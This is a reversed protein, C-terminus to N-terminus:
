VALISSCLLKNDDDILIRKIIAHCFAPWVYLFFLLCFVFYVFINNTFVIHCHRLSTYLQKIYCACLFTVTRYTHLTNLCSSHTSVSDLTMVNHHPQHHHYYHICSTTQCDPLKLSFNMTLLMASTTSPQCTRRATAMVVPAISSRTSASAIRHRPSVV